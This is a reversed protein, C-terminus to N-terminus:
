PANRSAPNGHLPETLERAKLRAVRRLPARDDIDAVSQRALGADAGIRVRQRPIRGETLFLVENRDDLRFHQHVTRMRDFTALRDGACDKLRDKRREVILPNPQLAHQQLGVHDNGAFVPRMRRRNMFDSAGCQATQTAVDRRCHRADHEQRAALVIPRGRVM